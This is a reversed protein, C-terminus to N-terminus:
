YGLFVYLKRGETGYEEKTTTAVFLADTTGRAPMFGFQMADVNLLAGIRTELAREVMKIAHEFMKVGVYANCNRTDGKKLIPM